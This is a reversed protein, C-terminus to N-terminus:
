NLSGSPWTIPSVWAAEQPDDRGTPSSWYPMALGVRQDAARDRLLQADLGDKVAMPALETRVQNPGPDALRPRQEELVPSSATAAEGETTVPATERQSSEALDGHVLALPV